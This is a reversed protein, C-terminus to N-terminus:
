RNGQIDVTVTEGEHVTVEQGGESAFLGGPSPIGVRYKGPAISNFTYHGMADAPAAATWGSQPDDSASAVYVVAGAPATGTITAMKTSMVIRLPESGAAIEFASHTVDASGLWASKLFGPGGFAMVRWRAPIVSKITFSGDEKVEAPLVGYPVPLEPNLSVRFQNLAVPHDSDSSEVSLTGNVDVGRTLQVVTEVPQDKVEVRQFAGVRKDPEGNTDAVLYYSGPFVAAFEFTGKQRDIDAGRFRAESSEMAPILGVNLSRWDTESPSFSGRVQTVPEPRMRFDIGPKEAGAAVEVMQASQASSAVPYFQEPYARSPPPDPGSSLPRPTFVPQFCQASLMYKGAPLNHIRYEGNDASNSGGRQQRPHTPASAAVFCGTLPDGDEDLVRGTVVGGPELDLTVSATDGAKVEVFKGQPQGGLPYNPHSASVWWKGETLGQVSFAGASDTSAPPSGNSNGQYVLQVMARKVPQRTVADVVTGSISGTQDQAAAAPALLIAALLTAARFRAARTLLRHDAGRTV